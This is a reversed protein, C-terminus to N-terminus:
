DTVGLHLFSVRDEVRVAIDVYAAEYWDRCAVELRWAPAADPWLRRLLAALLATLGDALHRAASDEDWPSIGSRGSPVFYAPLREHLLARWSEVPSLEVVRCGSPLLANVSTAVDGILPGQDFTFTCAHDTDELLDQLVVLVKRVMEPVADHQAGSM